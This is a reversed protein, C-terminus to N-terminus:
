LAESLEQNLTEYEDPPPNLAAKALRDIWDSSSNAPAIHWIGYQLADAPHSFIDKKPKESTIKEGTRDTPYSYRDCSEILDGLRDSVILGPAQTGDAMEYLRMARSVNDILNAISVGACKAPEAYIKYLDPEDPLVERLGTRWTWGSGARQDIMYPDGFDSVYTARGAPSHYGQAKEGLIRRFYSHPEESDIVADFIHFQKILNGSRTHLPLIHMLLCATGHFGFDWFRWVKEGPIYEARGTFDAPNWNKFCRGSSTGGYSIDLEAAIQKPTLGECAREYWNQDRGPHIRWHWTFLKIKGALMDGSHRLRSFIDEGKAKDPNPTSIFLLPGYCAPKVAEIIREGYHQFAAEDSLAYDWGGSRGADENATAGKIVSSTSTCTITGSKSRDLKFLKRWDEPLRSIIYWCKGLISNATAGQDIVLAEKESVCLGFRDRNFLTQHVAWVCWTWTAVMQRTKECLGVTCDTLTTCDTLWQWLDPPWDYAPFLEAQKTSKNLTYCFNAAFYAVDNQAIAMKLTKSPKM